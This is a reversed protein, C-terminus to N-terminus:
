SPLNTKPSTRDNVGLRPTQLLAAAEKTKRMAQRVGAMRPHIKLARRYAAMAADYQQLQFHNHGLGAAAGFHHHNLALTRHCALISSEYRKTLYHLIARQNVAEAFDPDKTLIQDLLDEACNFENSHICRIATKLLDCCEETSDRFWTAWLAREAMSAIFYDDCHLLGALADTNEGQGLLARCVCASDSTTQNKSCALQCLDDDHINDALHNCLGDADLSVFFPRTQQHFTLESSTCGSDNMRLDALLGLKIPADCATSLCWGCGVRSGTVSQM